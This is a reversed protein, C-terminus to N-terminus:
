KSTDFLKERKINGEIDEPYVLEDKDFDYTPNYDFNWKKQFVAYLPDFLSEGDKKKYIGYVPMREVHFRLDYFQLWLFDDLIIMKWIPKQEYLKLSVSKGKNRLEKLFGISNYIEQKYDDLPIGLASARMRAYKGDPHFLLIKIDGIVINELADRLIAARGDAHEAKAFTNYGTAGIMEVSKATQIQELLLKKNEKKDKEAANPRFYFLGSNNILINKSSTYVYLRYGIYCAVFIIGVFAAKFSGPVASLFRVQTSFYALVIGGTVYLFHYVGLVVLEFTLRGFINKLSERKM